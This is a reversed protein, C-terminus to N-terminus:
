AARSSVEENLIHRLRTVARLVFCAFSRPNATPVKRQAVCFIRQAQEGGVKQLGTTQEISSGNDGM